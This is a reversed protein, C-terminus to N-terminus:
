LTQQRLDEASFEVVEGDANFNSYRAWTPKIRFYTIGSWSQRDKGDPYVSFYVEKLRELEAGEPEDAIGDIQVTTEQDWGIVISIKPNRRLNLCKRTSGLTDFVVELGDTVAIGMVASQPSGNPSVTAVVGLQHKRLFQLLKTRTM